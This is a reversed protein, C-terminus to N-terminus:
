AGLAGARSERAGARGRCALLHDVRADMTKEFTHRIAFERATSAAAALRARERSLRTIEEALRAPKDLPTTWGVGAVKSVGVLAENDYGVIPVGCALTELYTCSPDGQRHCCVFLDANAAVFPMLESEFDLVGRLRVVDSLGLREADRRIAAELDGGGCIDLTFRVGLRRLEAAVQLLHDVGKIAVLRGTFCLRLPAEEAAMQATRLALVAPSVIMDARVRSDFFLLAPVGLNKYAEFTPTGNCQVGSSQRLAEIYRSEARSHWLQRRLRLVPNRTEAVVMQRRTRLSNESTYVLPVGASRCLPAVALDREFLGATVLGGGAVLARLGEGDPLWQFRFPLDAPDVAMEDLNKWAGQARGIVLRVPGPWRRVYEDMGTLFKKTLLVRGGPAEQASMASVFVLEGASTV